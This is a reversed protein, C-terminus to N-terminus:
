SINTDTKYAVLTSTFANDCKGLPLGIAYTIDQKIGFMAFMLDRILRKCPVDVSEILEEILLLKYKLNISRELYKINNIELFAFQKWTSSKLSIWQYMSAHKYYYMIVRLLSLVVIYIRADIVFKIFNDGVM